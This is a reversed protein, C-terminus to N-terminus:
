LIVCRPSNWVLHPFQVSQLCQLISFSGSWQRLGGVITESLPAFSVRLCGVMGCCLSEAPKVALPSQEKIYFIAWRLCYRYLSRHLEWSSSLVSLFIFEGPYIYIYIYTCVVYCRRKEMGNWDPILNEHLEETDYLWHDLKSKLTGLELSMECLFAYRNWAEEVQEHGWM